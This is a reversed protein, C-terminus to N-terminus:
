GLIVDPRAAEFRYLLDHIHVKLYPHVVLLVSRLCTPLRGLRLRLRAATPDLPRPSRYSQGVSRLVVGHQAKRAVLLHVQPDTFRQCRVTAVRLRLQHFAELAVPLLVQLLKTVRLFALLNRM